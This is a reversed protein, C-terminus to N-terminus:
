SKRKRAAAARKGTKAPEPDPEALPQIDFHAKGSSAMIGFAQSFRDPTAQVTMRRMRSEQDTGAEIALISLKPDDPHESVRVLRNCMVLHKKGKTDYVMVTSIM